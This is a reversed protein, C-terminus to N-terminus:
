LSNLIFSSISSRFVLQIARQQATRKKHLQREIIRANFAYSSAVEQQLFIVSHEYERIELLRHQVIM